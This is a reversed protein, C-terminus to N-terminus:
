PIRRRSFGNAFRKRQLMGQTRDVDARVPFPTHSSCSLAICLDPLGFGGPLNALRHVVGALNRRDDDAWVIARNCNPAPSSACLQKARLCPLLKDSVHSMSTRDVR